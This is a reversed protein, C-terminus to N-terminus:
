PKYRKLEAWKTEDTLESVLHDIWRNSYTYDRHATHYICFARTTDQPNKEGKRPRAHYMQWAKTHDNRTFAKGLRRSVIAAVKKPHHPYDEDSPRFKVLVNRIEKAETADPHIFQIHAHSKSANDLTYVVRFQYELDSLEEESMGEKLRADLAAIHEPIMYKQTTIAQDLNLKAFQLSFSLDTQLSLTPGFLKAIANDFNLCCAQFISLFSLDGRGLLKHEVDNRIQIMANLNHKVGKSLPCDQRKLMQSLPLSRGDGGVIAVGSRCYHEHLLYTWAINASVSFLETKFKVGPSNFIQVAAVMAERARILREDRFPNLGTRPDFAKKEELFREVVHDDAPGICPDQKVETIRASNITAIRGLNIQAQIDQNRWNRALLAKVVGEEDKTLRGERKRLRM